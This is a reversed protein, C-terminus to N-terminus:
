KVKWRVYCENGDFDMLYTGDMEVTVIGTNSDFSIFRGEGSPTEIM